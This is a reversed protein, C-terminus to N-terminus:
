CQALREQILSINIAFGVAPVDYGFKAILRDYRGGSAVMQRIGPVYVEFHPGTYYDFESILGPNYTVASELNYHALENHLQCLDPISEAIELGGRPPIYGLAVYDKQILATREADTFGSSFSPHGIDIGVDSFGLKGLISRCLHILHADSSASQPGIWEVGAQFVELQQDSDSPTRFVPAVYYLKLDDNNSLRNAVMRAIPTTHDPRLIMLHGNSDFFRISRSVLKPDLGVSLADFYDIVPTRIPSFGAAELSDSVSRTLSNHRIAEDPLWEAVGTPTFRKM